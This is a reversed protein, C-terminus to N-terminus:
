LQRIHAALSEFFGGQLEMALEAEIVRKYPKGWPEKDRGFDIGCLSASEDGLKCFCAWLPYAPQEDNFESSDIVPDIDWEFEIGEDKAWQEAKALECACRWRGQDESEKTPDYSVGAHEHFFQVASQEKIKTM